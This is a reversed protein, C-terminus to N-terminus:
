KKSILELSMLLPLHDSAVPEQIVQVNIVKWKNRPRPLVYDIQIKPNNTPVTFLENGLSEYFWGKEELLRIPESEPIVNLDGTLIALPIEESFFAQEVVEVSANRAEKSGITELYDFHTNVFRIKDENESLKSIDIDVCMAEYRSSSASPISVNGVYKIPHKSLIADGYFLQSAPVQIGLLRYLNPPEIETSAGFVGGMGTLRALEAMMISDSVEQLGVIDPDLKNIVNAIRELNKQSDTGVGYHINYSLIKIVKKEVKTTQACANVIVGIFVLAIM